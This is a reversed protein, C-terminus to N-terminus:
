ILFYGKFASGRLRSILKLFRNFNDIKRIYYIVKRISSTLNETRENLAREELMCMYFSAPFGLICFDAIDGDRTESVVSGVSEGNRIESVCCGASEGWRELFSIV